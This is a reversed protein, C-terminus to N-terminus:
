QAGAVPPSARPSLTRAGSVSVRDDQAHEDTLAGNHYNQATFQVSNEERRQWFAAVRSAVHRAHQEDEAQDDGRGRWKSDAERRAQEPGGGRGPREESAPTGHAHRMQGSHRLAVGRHFM